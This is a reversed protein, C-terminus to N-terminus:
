LASDPRRLPSRNGVNEELPSGLWECLWQLVAKQECFFPFLPAHELDGSQRRHFADLGFGAVNIKEPAPAYQRRRETPRLRLRPRLKATSSGCPCSRRRESRRRTRWHGTLSSTLRKADTPEAFRKPSEVKRSFLARICAPTGREKLLESALM